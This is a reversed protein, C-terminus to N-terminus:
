FEYKFDAENTEVLIQVAWYPVSLSPDIRMPAM